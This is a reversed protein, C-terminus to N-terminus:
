SSGRTVLRPMMAVHGSTPVPIAPRFRLSELPASRLCIALRAFFSPILFNWNRHCCRDRQLPAPPHALFHFVPGPGDNLKSLLCIHCGNGKRPTRIRAGSVIRSAHLCLTYLHLDCSLVTDPLSHRENGGRDGAPCTRLPTQRARYEIRM